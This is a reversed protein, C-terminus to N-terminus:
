MGGIGPSEAETAASSTLTERSAPLGTSAVNSPCSPIGASSRVSGAARGSRPETGEYAAGSSATRASASTTRYASHRLCGAPAGGSSSWM